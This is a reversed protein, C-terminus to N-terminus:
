NQEGAQELHQHYVFQVCQVLRLDMLKRFAFVTTDRVM